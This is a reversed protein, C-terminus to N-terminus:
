KRKGNSKGGSKMSKELAALAKTRRKKVSSPTKDVWQGPQDMFRGRAKRDDNKNKNTKTAM